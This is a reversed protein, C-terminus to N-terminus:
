TAGYVYLGCLIVLLAGIVTAVDPLDGFFLFGFLLAWLLYTYLLPALTQPPAREFARITVVHGATGLLGITGLLAWGAGSPQTWSWPLALGTGIAGIAGVFYLSIAPDETRRILPTLVHYLASCGAMILPLLAASQFIASGPRIVILVGVLGCGVALWCGKRVREGLVPSV